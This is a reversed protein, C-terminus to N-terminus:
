TAGRAWLIPGTGTVERVRIDFQYVIASFRYEDNTVNVADAQCRAVGPGGGYIMPVPSWTIGITSSNVAAATKIVPQQLVQAPSFNDDGSFASLRVDADAPTGQEIRLSCWGLLSCHRDDFIITLRAVGGGADGTVQMDSITYMSHPAVFGDGGLPVIHVRGTTPQAPLTVTETVAMNLPPGGEM